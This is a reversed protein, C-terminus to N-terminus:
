GPRSSVQAAETADVLALSFRAIAARETALHQLEPTLPSRLHEFPLTSLGTFVMLQLAHARRVDQEPMDCGEARLGDVYAPVVVQEIEALSGASTRGVQADGVLLQALDFGLPAENWFGFDILVFGGSHAPVLMNNPCADGHATGCPFSALEEVLAPARDAVGRLRERLEQDFAGAVLPHHWIGEDRLMPLVQHKLRGHLYDHVTWDHEGVRALPRVRPSAALRGLLRAARQYLSLGWTPSRHDVVELWVCASREDLDFVGLARPMELGEPLRTALDSRYVLAETRWPVGAEAVAAIEAPVEAFLASRAWSQVHKVFFAYPTVADAIRAHGRVWFRGATTIAQLDYPVHEALSSLLHVEDPRHGLLAAVMATLQDDEVDAPGLATRDHM